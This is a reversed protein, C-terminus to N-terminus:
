CMSEDDGVSSTVCQATHQRCSHKSAMIMMLNRVDGAVMDREDRRTRVREM